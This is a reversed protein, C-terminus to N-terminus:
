KRAGFENIDLSFRGDTVVLRGEDSVRYCVDSLVTTKPFINVIHSGDALDFIRIRKEPRKVYEDKTPDYVFVYGEIRAVSGTSEIIKGFFHRRLDGEFNRRTIIHLREGNEFLM